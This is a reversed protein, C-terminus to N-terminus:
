KLEGADALAITLKLLAKLPTDAEVEFTTEASNPGTMDHKYMAYYYDGSAMVLPSLPYAKGYITTLSKPLKELLYDSTYLPCIASSSVGTAEAWTGEDLIVVNSHEQTKSDYESYYSEVTGAWGIRKYVEKCLEFLEPDNM